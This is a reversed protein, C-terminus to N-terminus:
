ILLQTDRQVVLIWTQLKQGLNIPHVLNVCIYFTSFKNPLFLNLISNSKHIKLLKGLSM